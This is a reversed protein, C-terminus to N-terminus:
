AQMLYACSCLYIVTAFVFGGPVSPPNETSKLVPLKEQAKQCPQKETYVSPQRNGPQKYLVNQIGAYLYSCGPSYGNCFATESICYFHQNFIHNDWFGTDM